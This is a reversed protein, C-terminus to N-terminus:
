IEAYGAKAAGVLPLTGDTIGYELNDGVTLQYTNGGQIRIATEASTDVWGSGYCFAFTRPEIVVEATVEGSSNVTISPTVYADYGGYISASPIQSVTVQSFGDYGTDPNITQISSTPNITKTQLKVSKVATITRITGGNADLTDSILISGGGGKGVMNFIM